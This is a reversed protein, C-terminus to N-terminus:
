KFFFLFWSPCYNTIILKKQGQEDFYFVILFDLVVKLKFQQIVM